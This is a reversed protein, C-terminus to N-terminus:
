KKKKKVVAAGLIDDFSRNPDLVVSSPRSGEFIGTLPVPLAELGYAVSARPSARPSHNPSSGFSASLVDPNLSPPAELGFSSCDFFDHPLPKRQMGPTMSSSRSPHHSSINADPNTWREAAQWCHSRRYIGEVGHDVIDSPLSVINGDASRYYGKKRGTDERVWPPSGKPVECVFYEVGQTWKLGPADTVVLPLSQLVTYLFIWQGIRLDFIEEMSKGRASSREFAIFAELFPTVKVSERNYSQMLAMNIEDDKLKKGREKAQKKEPLSAFERRTHALDPLQPIDLPVPPQVPPSSCDFESMLKRLANIRPDPSLVTDHSPMDATRTTLSKRDVLMDYLDAFDRYVERLLLRNLGSEEFENKKSKANPPWAGYRTKYISLVHKRMAVFSAKWAKFDAHKGETSSAAIGAFLSPFEFEELRFRMSKLRIFLDMSAKEMRSRTIPSIMSFVPLDLAVIENWKGVGHVFGENYLRWSKMKEGLVIAEVTKERSTRVDDLRLDSTYDHFKVTAEHGFTSGDLNSFEYRHLADAIKLFISFLSPQKPTGVLIQGVLFAFLNRICAMKDIEEVSPATALRNPDLGLPLYVHADMVPENNFNTNRMAVLAEPIGDSHGGLSPSRSRLATLSPVDLSAQRMHPHLNQATQQDDQDGLPQSSKRSPMGHILNSLVRSSAVLTSDLRFSAGLGAEQPFLHILTNGSADWLDPVPQAKLLYSIDYPEQGHPTVVWAQQSPGISAESESRNHSRGPMWSRKKTLKGETPTTPRSGQVPSSARSNPASSTRNDQRGRPISGGKSSTPSVPREFPEGIRPPPALGDGSPSAYPNLPQYAPPPAGWPSSGVLATYSPTTFTPPTPSHFNQTSSSSRLPLGNNLGPSKDISNPQLHQNSRSSHLEISPLRNHMDVPHGGDRPSPLPRLGPATSHAPGHAAPHEESSRSPSTSRFSLLSSVRSHTSDKIIPM